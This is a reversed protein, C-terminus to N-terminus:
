GALLLRYLLNSVLIAAGMFSLVGALSAPQFLALGTIGHGSTCGRGIRTGLGILTGGAFMWVLKVIPTDGLSTAVTADWVSGLDWIPAWGGALLASAAGGIVLGLLFWPRWSGRLDPRQFYPLRSGALACLNELGTSLGFVRGTTWLLLISIAAIGIASLWWPAPTLDHLILM